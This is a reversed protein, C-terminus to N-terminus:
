AFRGQQISYKKNEAKLHWSKIKKVCSALTFIGDQEISYITGLIQQQM